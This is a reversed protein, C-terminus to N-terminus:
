WSADQQFFFYMEAHPLSNVASITFLGSDRKSRSIYYMYLAGWRSYGRKRCAIGALIYQVLIQLTEM